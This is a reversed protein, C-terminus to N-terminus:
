NDDIPQISDPVVQADYHEVLHRVTPDSRFQQEAQVQREDREKRVRDSYTEAAVEAVAGIAIKPVSGLWPALAEALSGVVVPEALVSFDAPLHLRLLGERYEGFVSNAALERAPGRLGARAQLRLWDEHDNLTASGSDSVGGAASRTSDRAGPGADTPNVAAAAPRAAPVGAM